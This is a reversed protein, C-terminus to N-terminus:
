GESENLREASTEVHAEVELWVLRVMQIALPRSVGGEQKKNFNRCPHRPESKGIRSFGSLNRVSNM